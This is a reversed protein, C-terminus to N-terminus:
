FATWLHKAQRRPRLHAPQEHLNFRITPQLENMLNEKARITKM